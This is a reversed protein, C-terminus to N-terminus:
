LGSDLSSIILPSHFSIFIFQPLLLPLQQTLSHTLSYDRSVYHRSFDIVVDLLRPKRRPPSEDTLEQSKSEVITMERQREM